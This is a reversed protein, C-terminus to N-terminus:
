WSPATEVGVVDAAPIRAVLVGVTTPNSPVRWTIVMEAQEELSADVLITFILNGDVDTYGDAALDIVAGSRLTVVWRSPAGAAFNM